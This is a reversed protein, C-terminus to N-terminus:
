SVSLGQVMHETTLKSRTFCLYVCASVCARARVCVQILAGYCEVGMELESVDRMEKFLALAVDPRGLRGCSAIAAIYSRSNPTIGMKVLAEYVSKMVESTPCAVMGQDEVSGPNTLVIANASEDASQECIRNPASPHCNDADVDGVTQMRLDPALLPVENAQVDFRIEPQLLLDVGKEMPIRPVTRLMAIFDNSRSIRQTPRLGAESVPATLQRFLDNFFDDVQPGLSLRKDLKGQALRAARRFMFVADVVFLSCFSLMCQNLSCPVIDTELPPSRGTCYAKTLVITACM